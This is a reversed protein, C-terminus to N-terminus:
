KEELNKLITKAATMATVNPGLLPVMVLIVVLNGIAGFLLYPSVPGSTLVLLFCVIVLALIDFGIALLAFFQKKTM